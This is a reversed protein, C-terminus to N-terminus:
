RKSGIPFVNDPSPLEQQCDPCYWYMLNSTLKNYYKNFHRCTERQQVPMLERETFYEPLGTCTCEGCYEYGGWMNRGCVEVIKFDRGDTTTVVDGESYTSDGHETKALKELWDIQSM